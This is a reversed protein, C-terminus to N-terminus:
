RARGGHQWFMYGFTVFATLVMTGLIDPRQIFALWTQIGNWYGGRSMLFANAVVIVFFVGMTLAVASAVDVLKKMVPSM